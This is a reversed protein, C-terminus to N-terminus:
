AFLGRHHGKRKEKTVELIKKALEKRDEIPMDVFNDKFYGLFMSVYDAVKKDDLTKELVKEGVKGIDSKIEDKNGEEDGGTDEPAPGEPKEDDSAPPLEEDGSPATDGEPEVGGEPEPAPVPEETSVPEEPAPGKADLGATMEASGDTDLAPETETNTAADLDGIKSAAQDIEEGAKDENLKKKSGNKDPKLSTAGVITHFIMNRQKDAEGLSKYKFNTINGLGGIYAFDAVDPDQKTGAKKLYYDHNEKVIGYAVGDAARKYDILSGLNRVQSEKIPPRNVEGLVKLREFYAEKTTHKAM